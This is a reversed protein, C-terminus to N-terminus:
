HTLSQTMGASGVHQQQQANPVQYAEHQHPQQQRPAQWSSLGQSARLSDAQDQAFREHTFQAEAALADPGEAFNAVPGGAFPGHLGPANVGQAM